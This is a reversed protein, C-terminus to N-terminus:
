RETVSYNKEASTLVRSAFKLVREDDGVKQVLVAGLGTDSADTHIEFQVAFDPQQLLPASALLAKVQEFALQQEENWVFKIEKKTLKTLPEAVTAFNSLFERYWSAM